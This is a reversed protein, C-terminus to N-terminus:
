KRRTNLPIVEAPEDYVNELDGPGVDSPLEGPPCIELGSMLAEEWTCSNPDPSARFRLIKSMAPEWAHHRMAVRVPPAGPRARVPVLRKDPASPIYIRQEVWQAVPAHDNRDPRYEVTAPAASPPCECVTARRLRTRLM